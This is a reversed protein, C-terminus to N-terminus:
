VAGRMSSPGEAAVAKGGHVSGGPRGGGQASGGGGKVGVLALARRGRIAGASQDRIAACRPKAAAPRAGHM